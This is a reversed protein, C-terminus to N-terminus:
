PTAGCGREEGCKPTSGPNAMPPLALKLRPDPSLAGALDLPLLPLVGLPPDRPASLRKDMRM